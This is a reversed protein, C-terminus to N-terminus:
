RWAKEKYARLTQQKHGAVVRDEDTGELKTLV